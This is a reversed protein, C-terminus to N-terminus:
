WVHLPPVLVHHEWNRSIDVIINDLIFFFSSWSAVDEFVCISFSTLL